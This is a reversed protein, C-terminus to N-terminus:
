FFLIARLICLSEFTKSLEKQGKTNSYAIERSSYTSLGLMGFTSFLLVVSNTYSYIGLSKVGLTRSLYPMLIIPIVSVLAQYSINYFFNKAVKSMFSINGKLIIM